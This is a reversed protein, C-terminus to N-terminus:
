RAILGKMALPARPTWPGFGLARLFRGGASFLGWAKMNERRALRRNRARANRGGRQGGGIGEVAPEVEPVDGVEIGSAADLPAWAQRPAETPAIRVLAEDADRRVEFFGGGICKERFDEAVLHGVERGALEV